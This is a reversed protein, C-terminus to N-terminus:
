YRVTHDHRPGFELKEFSTWGNRRTWHFDNDDDPEWGCMSTTEFDCMKTHNVDLRCEGLERDWKEGDCFATSSGAVIYGDQCFVMSKQKKEDNMVWGKQRM